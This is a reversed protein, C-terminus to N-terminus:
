DVEKVLVRFERNREGDQVQVRFAYPNTPDDIVRFANPNLEANMTSAEVQSLRKVTDAVIKRHNLKTNTM